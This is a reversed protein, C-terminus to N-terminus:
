SSALVQQVHERIRSTWRDYGEANQHINDEQFFTCDVKGGKLYLDSTPVFYVNKMDNVAQRIYDNAAQIESILHERAPVHTIEVFFVPAAPQHQKSKKIIYEVLRLMEQPSKDDKNGWIDNGIFLVLAQYQHPCLIRPAYYPNNQNKTVTFM